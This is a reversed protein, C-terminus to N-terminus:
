KLDLTEHNQSELTPEDNQEQSQFSSFTFDLAVGESLSQKIKSM